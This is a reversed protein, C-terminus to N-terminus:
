QLINGSLYDPLGKDLFYTWGENFNTRKFSDIVPFTELGGHTIRLRTKGGEDILDFSVHSDGEYGDYRWTYAIKKLPEIDTVRCLHLYKVPEMGALFSFETGVEPKFGVMDFYWKKMEDIDTLARWVIAKPADFVRELILPELM